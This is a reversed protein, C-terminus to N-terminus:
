SVVSVYRITSPRFTDESYWTRTRHATPSVGAHSYLPTPDAVGRHAERQKPKPRQWTFTTAVQLSVHAERDPTPSAFVYTDWTAYTADVLVVPLPTGSFTALLL